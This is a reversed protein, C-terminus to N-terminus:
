RVLALTGAVILCMFAAFGIAFYRAYAARPDNRGPM